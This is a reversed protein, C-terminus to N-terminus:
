VRGELKTQVIRRVGSAVNLWALDSDPWTSVPKAGSPLAELDKFPTHMWDCPRLIVPIVVASGGHARALARPVEKTFSYDSAIYDASVLLLIVDAQDIQADIEQPYTTGPLLDRDSWIDLLGERNLSALHTLLVAQLGADVHAYSVVLRLKRRAPANANGSASDLCALLNLLGSGQSESVRNLDQAREILLKKVEGPHGILEPRVSLLAAIAGSVHASAMGTGSNSRYLAAGKAPYAAVIAEGPAVLDPKRRGDLTPGRSSFSSVGYLLPRDRHCSGVTIALEANGPDSIAPNGTLGNNGLATVVVVGSAVLRDVAVCFPSQGCAYNKSDWGYVLGADVGHIRINRGHENIEDIADLAQIVRSGMGRGDGRVVKLSVIRCKPAMGSIRALPQRMWTQQADDTLTEQVMPGDQETREGAIISAM